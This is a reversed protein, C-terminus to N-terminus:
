FLLYRVKEALFKARRKVIYHDIWANATHMDNIGELRMTKILRDQLTKNAREV